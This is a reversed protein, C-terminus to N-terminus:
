RVQARTHTHTRAIIIVFGVSADCVVEYLLAFTIDDASGSDTAVAQLTFPPQIGAEIVGDLVNVEFNPTLTLGITAAGGVTIPAFYYSYKFDDNAIGQFGNQYAVGLSVNGGAQFHAVSKLNCSSAFLSLM